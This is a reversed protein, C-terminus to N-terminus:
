RYLTKVGGWTAEENPIPVDVTSVGCSVAPFQYATTDSVVISDYDPHSVIEFQANVPSENEPVYLVITAMVAADPGFVPIPSYLGIEMGTYLDGQRIGEPYQTEILTFVPDLNDLMFAAGQLLIEANHVMVYANLVQGETYAWDRLTGAEDFYVCVEGISHFRIYSTLGEAEYQLANVDAVVPTAYNPHSTVTIPANNVNTLSYLSMEGLVGFQDGFVPMPQYLGIEVGTAYTGMIQGDAWVVSGVTVQPDVDIAFAAGGLLQEVDKVVIYGTAMDPILGCFGYLNTAEEDYYVGITPLQAFLPSALILFCSLVLLHRKM